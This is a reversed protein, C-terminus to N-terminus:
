LRTPDVEIGSTLKLVNLYLLNQITNCPMLTEFSLMVGNHTNQCSLFNRATAGLGATFCFVPLSEPNVAALEFHRLERGAVVRNNGPAVSIVSIWISYRM